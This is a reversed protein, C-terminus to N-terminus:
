KKTEGTPSTASKKESKKELKALQRQLIRIQAEIKEELKRGGGGVFIHPDVQASQDCSFMIEYACSQFSVDAIDSMLFNGSATAPPDRRFPHGKKGKCSKHKTIPQITVTVPKSSYWMLQDLGPLIFIADHGQHDTEKSACAADINYRHLTGGSLTGTDYINDESRQKWDTGDKDKDAHLLTVCGFCALCLILLTRSM